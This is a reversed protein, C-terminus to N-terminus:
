APALVASLGDLETLLSLLAPRLTRAEETPLMAIAACIVAAGADLGELDIQRGSEVLARAVTLTGRMEDIAALAPAPLIASM